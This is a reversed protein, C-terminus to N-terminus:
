LLHRLRSVSGGGSRLGDSKEAQQLLM